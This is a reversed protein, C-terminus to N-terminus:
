VSPFSSLSSKELDFNRRKTEKAAKQLFDKSPPIRGTALKRLSEFRLRSRM